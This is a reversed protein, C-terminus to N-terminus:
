QGESYLLTVVYISEIDGEIMSEVWPVIGQRELRAVVVELDEPRLVKQFDDELKQTRSKVILPFRDRELSPLLTTTASMTDYLLQRDLCTAVVEVSPLFVCGGVSAIERRATSTLGVFRDTNPFVICDPLRAVMELIQDVGVEADPSLINRSGETAYFGDAYPDTDALLRTGEESLCTVVDSGAGSGVGLILVSM